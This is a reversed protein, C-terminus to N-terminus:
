RVTHKAEQVQGPYGSLRTQIAADMGEPALSEVEPDRVAAVGESRTLHEKVALPVLHLKGASLFLRNDANEPKLWKPLCMAAEILLFQGDQDEMWAVASPYKITIERLLFCMFWEDDVCDSYQSRGWLHLDTGAHAVYDPDDPDPTRLQFPESHWLYNKTYPILCAVCEERWAAEDCTKESIPHYLHYQLWCEEEDMGGNQLGQM